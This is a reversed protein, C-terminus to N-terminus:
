TVVPDAPTAAQSREYSIVTQRLYNVVQQKAFQTQTQPNPSGDPLVTQYGNVACLATVIRTATAADPVNLSLLAPM